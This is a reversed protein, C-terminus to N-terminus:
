QSNFTEKRELSSKHCYPYVIHGDFNWTWVDFYLKLFIDFELIANGLMSILLPALKLRTIYNDYNFLLNM